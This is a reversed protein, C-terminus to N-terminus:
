VSFLKLSVVSFLYSILLSYVSYNLVLLVGIQFTINKSITEQFLKVDQILM